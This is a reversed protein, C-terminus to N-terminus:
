LVIRRDNEWLEGVSNWDRDSDLAFDMLQIPIKEPGERDGGFIEKRRFGFVGGARELSFGLRISDDSPSIDEKDVDGLVQWAAPVLVRCEVGAHPVGDASIATNEASPQITLTLKGV